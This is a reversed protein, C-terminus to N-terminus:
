LETGSGWVERAIDVLAAVKANESGRWDMIRAHAVPSESATKVSLLSVVATRVDGDPLSRPSLSHAISSTSLNNQVNRCADLYIELVDQVKTMVEQPSNESSGDM